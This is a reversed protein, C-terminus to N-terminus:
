NGLQKLKKQALLSFTGTNANVTLYETLIDRAAQIAGTQEYFNSLVLFLYDNQTLRSIGEKLVKIAYSAMGRDLFIEALDTYDQTSVPIMSVARQFAFNSRKKEGMCLYSQSLNYHYIARKPNKEIAKKFAFVAAEYNDFKLNLLGLYNYIEANKPNKEAANQLVELAKEPQYNQDYCKSLSIYARYNSPNLEITKHFDEIASSIKGSNKRITGLYFYSRPNKQNLKVAHNLYKEAQIYNLENAYVIGLNQSALYHDNKFRLVESFNYKAKEYDGKSYYALGRTFYAEYYKPDVEIAKDLYSIEQEFDGQKKSILALNYYGEPFKAPDIEISKLAYETAKALNGRKFEINALNNYGRAYMPKLQVAKQFFEEAKELNDRKFSEVGKENYYRATYLSKPKERPKISKQFANEDVGFDEQGPSSEETEYYKQPRNFVIEEQKETLQAQKEQRKKSFKEINDLKSHMIKKPLKSLKKLSIEPMKASKVKNVLSIKKKPNIQPSEQAIEDVYVKPQPSYFEEEPSAYHGALKDSIQNKFYVYKNNKGSLAIAKEMYVDANEYNKLEIYCRSLKYYTYDNSSNIDLASKYYKVATEYEQNDFNLDAIDLYDLEQSQNYSFKENEKVSFEYLAQKKSNNRYHEEIRQQQNVKPTKDISNVAINANEDVWNNKFLEKEYNKQQKDDRKNFNQLVLKERKAVEDTYKLAIEASINQAYYKYRSNDPNLDIARKIYPEANLYDNLEKYSRCAKFYTNDNYPNIQLALNYYEIAADFQQNDAHMDGLDIYDNEKAKVESYVDLNRISDKKKVVPSNLLEVVRNFHHLSNKHMQLKKYVVAINYHAEVNDSDKDLVLKFYKIAEKLEDQQLSKMGLEFNLKEINIQEAFGGAGSFILLLLCITFLINKKASFLLM